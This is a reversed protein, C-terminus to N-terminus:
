VVRLSRSKADQMRQALDDDTIGTCDVDGPKLYKVWLWDIESNAYRREVFRMTDLNETTAGIKVATNM